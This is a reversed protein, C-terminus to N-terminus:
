IKNLRPNVAFTQNYFLLLSVVIWFPLDIAVWGFTIISIGEFFARLFMSVGITLLALNILYNETDYYQSNNLNSSAIKLFIYPLYIALLFGFIGMDSAFVLYYNHSNNFGETITHVDYFLYGIFSDQLVPSYNFMFDGWLGPGVGLFWHDKFMNFSLQWLYDRQSFGQEIRLVSLLTESIPLILISVVVFIIALLIKNALKRNFHYFFFIVGLLVSLGASRSITSLIGLILILGGFLLIVKTLKNKVIIINAIFFPFSVVIFGSLANVNSLLGGTRFEATGTLIIDTLNFSKISLISSLSMIIGSLMLVSILQKTRHTLYLYSYFGFVIYFFYIEKLIIEFGKVPNSSFVSSIFLLVFFFIFFQRFLPHISYFIIKLSESHKLLYITTSTVGIFHVLMRLSPSIEGVVVLYSLLIFPLYDESRYFLFYVLLLLLPISLLQYQPIVTTWIIFLLILSVTFVLEKDFIIRFIRM